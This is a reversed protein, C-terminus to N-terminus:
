HVSLNSLVNRVTLSAKHAPFNLVEIEMFMFFNNCGKPYCINFAFYAAMLTLPVDDIDIETVVRQDTVLFTQTPSQVDGVVLVYPELQKNGEAVKTVNTSAQLFLLWYAHCCLIRDLRVDSRHTSFHCM